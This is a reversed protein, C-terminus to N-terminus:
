FKKYWNKKYGLSKDDVMIDFSPKGMVLKHFKLGWSKLQKFTFNYGQAYAKKVNDNNRGMYRGTFIIIKNGKEYKLNIKRIINTYPKSLKYNKGKTKCITNDIDFCYIKKNM